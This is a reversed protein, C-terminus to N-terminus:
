GILAKRIRYESVKETSEALMGAQSMVKLMEAPPASIWRSRAPAANIVSKVIKALSEENLHSEKSTSIAQLLRRVDGYRSTLYASVESSAKDVQSKWIEDGVLALSKKKKLLEQCLLVTSRPRPLVGLISPSDDGKYDWTSNPLVAFDVNIIKEIDTLKETTKVVNIRKQILDWLERPTWDQIPIREKAHKVPYGQSEYRDYVTSSVAVSYPTKKGHSTIEYLSKLFENVISAVESSSDYGDDIEDIQLVICKMYDHDRLLRSANNIRTVLNQEERRLAASALKGIAKAGQDFSLLAAMGELLAGANSRVFTAAHEIPDLEVLGIDTAIRRLTADKGVCLNNYMNRTIEVLMWYDVVYRITEIGNYEGWSKIQDRLRMLSNFLVRSTRRGNKKHHLEMDNLFATKGSGAPGYIIATESSLKDRYQERSVIYSQIDPDKGADEYRFLDIIKAWPIERAKTM